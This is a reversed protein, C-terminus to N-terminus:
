QARHTELRVISCSPTFPLRWPIAFLMPSLLARALPVRVYFMETMDTVKSTVLSLSQNFKQVGQASDFLFLRGNLIHTICVTFSM